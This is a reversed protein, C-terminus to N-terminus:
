STTVFLESPHRVQVGLIRRQGHCGADAPEENQAADEMLQSTGVMERFQGVQQQALINRARGVSQWSREGGLLILEELLLEHAAVIEASIYEQQEAVSAHTDAFADVEGVVAQAGCAGVLPGDM